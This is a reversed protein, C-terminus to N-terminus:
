RAAEIAKVCDAVSEGAAMAKQLSEYAAPERRIIKAAEGVAWRTLSQQQEAKLGNRARGMLRQLTFLDGVGGKVEDFSLGEAAVGAMSIVALRDIEADDLLKLGLPRGLSAEALDTHEEGMDQSYGVAPTGLMYCVLFHGAEHKLTREGGPGEGARQAAGTVNDVVAYLLGPATSGVALVVLVVGGVLYPVFFGWDGPLFGAAVAIVSCVLLVTTLFGQDDREEPTGISEPQKIGAMKLDRLSCGRRRLSSKLSAFRPAAGAESLAEVAALAGEGNAESCAGSLRAYLSSVEAPDVERVVVPAEEQSPAAPAPVAPAAPKGLLADLRSLSDAKGADDSAHVAARLRLPRARRAAGHGSRLAAARTTSAAAM